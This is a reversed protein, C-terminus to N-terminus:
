PVRSRRDGWNGVRADQYLLSGTALSAFLRDSTRANNRASLFTSGDEPSPPAGPGPWRSATSPHRRKSSSPRQPLRDAPGEFRRELLSSRLPCPLQRAPLLHPLDDLVRRHASIVLPGHRRRRVRGVWEDPIDPVDTAVVRNPLVGSLEDFWFTSMATLVRGKDPVTEGLVVDFVSLRDSAVFLLLGDGADYIDRVKGSYIHKLDTM